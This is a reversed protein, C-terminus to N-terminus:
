ESLAATIKEHLQSILLNSSEYNLDVNIPIATVGNKRFSNPYRKSGEYSLKQFTWYDDRFKKGAKACRAILHTKMIEPSQNMMFVVFERDTKYTKAVAMLPTNIRTGEFILIPTSSIWAMKVAEIQETAQGKFESDNDARISRIHGSNLPGDFKELVKQVATTKGAANSGTVLIALRPM